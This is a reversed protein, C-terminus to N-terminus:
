PCCRIGSPCLLDPSARYREGCWLASGAATRTGRVGGGCVCVEPSSLNARDWDPDCKGQMGSCGGRQWPLINERAGPPASHDGRLAGAEEQGAGTVRAVFM